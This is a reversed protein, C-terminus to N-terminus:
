WPRAPSREAFLIAALMNLKNVTSTSHLYITIICSSISLGFGFESM